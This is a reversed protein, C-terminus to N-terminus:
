PINQDKIEYGDADYKRPDPYYEKNLISLTERWGIEHMCKTSCIRWNMTRSGGLMGCCDVFMEKGCCNCYFQQKSFRSM